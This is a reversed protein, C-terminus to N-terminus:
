FPSFSELDAGEVVRLYGNIAQGVFSPASILMVKLFFYPLAIPFFIPHATPAENLRQAWTAPGFDSALSSPGSADTTSDFIRTGTPNVLVSDDIVADDDDQAYYIGWVPFTTSTDAALRSAVVAHTLIGPGAFRPSIAISRQSNTSCGVIFPWLRVTGTPPAAGGGTPVPPPQVVVGSPLKLGRAAAPAHLRSGPVRYDWLDLRIRATLLENAM